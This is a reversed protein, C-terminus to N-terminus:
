PSQACWYLNSGRTLNSLTLKQFAIAGITGDHLLRDREGLLNIPLVPLRWVIDTASRALVKLQAIAPFYERIAMGMITLPLFIQLLVSVYTLDCSVMINKKWYCCLLPSYM